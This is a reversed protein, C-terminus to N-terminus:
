EVIRKYCCGEFCYFGAACVGQECAMLDDQLCEMNEGDEGPEKPNDEPVVPKDPGDSPDGTPPCLTINSIGSAQPGSNGAPHTWERDVGYYTEGGAKVAFGAVMDMAFGVFEGEEKDNSEAEVKSMWGQFEMELFDSSVSLDKAGIEGGELRVCEAPVKGTSPISTPDINGNEDYVLFGSYKGSKERDATESAGCAFVFMSLLGVAALGFKSDLNKM